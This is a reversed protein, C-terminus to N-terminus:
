YEDPLLMMTTSRDKTTIIWVRQGGRTMYVSLIRFGLEVSLDNEHANVESVEGWDGSSHRALLQWGEWEPSDHNGEVALLAAATAVIDGLRFLSNVRLLKGNNDPSGAV